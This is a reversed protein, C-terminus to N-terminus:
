EILYMLVTILAVIKQNKLQWIIFETLTIIIVDIAVSNYSRFFFYLRLKM